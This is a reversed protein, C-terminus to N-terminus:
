YYCHTAGIPNFLVDIEVGDADEGFYGAPVEGVGGGEFVFFMGGLM